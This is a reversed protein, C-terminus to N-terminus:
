LSGTIVRQHLKMAHRFTQNYEHQATLSAFRPLTPMTNGSDGVTPMTKEPGYGRCASRQGRQGAPGYHPLAWRNRLAGAFLQVAVLGWIFFTFACLFLVVILMPLAAIMTTVLVQPCCRADRAHQLSNRQLILAATLLAAPLVHHTGQLAALAFIPVSCACQCTCGHLACRSRTWDSAVDSLSCAADCRM